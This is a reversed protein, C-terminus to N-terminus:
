AIHTYARFNKFIAGVEYQVFIKVYFNFLGSYFQFKIFNPAFMKNELHKLSAWNYTIILGNKMFFFDLGSPYDKVNTEQFHYLLPM